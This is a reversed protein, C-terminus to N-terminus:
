TTVLVRFPEVIGQAAAFNQLRALMAHTVEHGKPVLLVGAETRIDEDTIMRTLLDKVTVSKAVTEPRIQEVRSLADCIWDPFCLAKARLKEVAEERAAGCSILREFETSARLIQAGLVCPDWDGPGPPQAAPDVVDLQGAVMRAVNGLRPIGSILKETVKPHSRFMQAEEEGLEEGMSVKSLLDFPLSIRGVQSPMAALRIQWANEITLNAAVGQAYHSVRSALSFAEPNILGLIETLMKVAGSLTNELLEREAKVLRYQDIALELGRVLDDTECPKTLFRYISGENIAQIASELESQGSLIMRVPDPDLERVKTLFQAGNMGPMKMDSVVVAFPGEKDLTELGAEGGLATAVEFKKRLQRRLGDLVNQEDDVFLVKEGM